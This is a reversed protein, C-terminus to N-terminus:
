PDAFTVNPKFHDTESRKFPHNMSGRLDNGGTAYHQRSSYHELSHDHSIQSDFHQEYRKAGISANLDYDGMIRQNLSMEAIGGHAGVNM